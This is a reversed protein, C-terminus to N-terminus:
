RLLMVDGGRRETHGDRFRVEMTWLYVGNQAPRGDSLGGDWGALPVAGAEQKATRYVLGGWRDYVSLSTLEVAAAGFNPYFRDNTGDGNPSFATSVFIDYRPIVLIRLSDIAV